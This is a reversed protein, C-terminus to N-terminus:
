FIGTEKSLIECWESYQDESVACKGITGDNNNQFYITLGRNSKRCYISHHAESLSIILWVKAGDIEGTSEGNTEEM